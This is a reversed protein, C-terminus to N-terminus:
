RWSKICSRVCEEEAIVPAPLEDGGPGTGHPSRGALRIGATDHDRPPSNPKLQHHRLFDMFKLYDDQAIGFLPLLRKYSGDTLRLGRVILARVESRNLEREIFPRHVVDWFSHGQNVMREFDLLAPTTSSAAPSAGRAVTHDATLETGVCSQGIESDTASHFSVEALAHLERVNGPWHYHELLALAADSFWKRQGFQRNLRRLYYDLLLRWDGGRERLPPIRLRLFRLRFYLDERFEGRAVMGQLDRATATIVRVDTHRPQNEGVRVVEGESITRLLMAQAALSLEAIEDLFVVGGSAEDFVGARDVLAGTFSGKKHGFLESALLQSDQYKACNVCLFRQRSRGGLLYLARAFLEKGSGTEGGILVPADAQAFQVLHRQAELMTDHLGLIITAGRQGWRELSLQTIKQALETQCAESGAMPLLM